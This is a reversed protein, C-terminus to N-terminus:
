AASECAIGGMAMPSRPPLCGRRGDEERRWRGCGQWGTGQSRDMADEARSSMAAGVGLSLGVTLYRKRKKEKEKRFELLMATIAIQKNGNGSRSDSGENM